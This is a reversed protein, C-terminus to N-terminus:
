LYQELVLFYVILYPLGGVILKNSSTALFLMPLTKLIIFTYVISGINVLKGRKLGGKVGRFIFVPILSVICVIIFTIIMNYISLNFSNKNNSVGGLVSQQFANDKAAEKSNLYSQNVTAESSTKKLTTKNSKTKSQKNIWQNQIIISNLIKHFVLQMSDYNTKILQKSSIPIKLSLKSSIFGGTNCMIVILKTKYFLVACKCYNYVMVGNYEGEYAIDGIITNIGDIKTKYGNFYKQNEGLANEEFFAKPTIEAYSENIMTICNEESVNDPFPIDCVNFILQSIIGNTTLKPKFM